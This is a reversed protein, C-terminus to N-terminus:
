LWSPVRCPCHEAAKVETMVLTHETANPAKSSLKRLQLSHHGLYHPMALFVTFAGGDRCSGPTLILLGLIGIHELSCTSDLPGM